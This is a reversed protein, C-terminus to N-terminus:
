LLTARGWGRSLRYAAIIAAGAAVAVLVIGATLTTAADGHVAGRLATMAWYGPSAPAVTRALSPMATLPVLAGSLGALITAGIDVAATFQALSNVFMATAAGLCVITTAWVADALLLLGYNRVQLDLVTIGVGLVVAQQLLLILLAPVVKGIVLEIVRAQSARLRDFTHWRRETLISSGVLSTALLSFMVLQGLVAQDTGRVSDHMAATYLPHLLLMLLVPQVIRGLLPGPDRGVMTLNGRILPLTRDLTPM